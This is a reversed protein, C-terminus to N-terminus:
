FLFNKQHTNFFNLLLNQIILQDINFNVMMLNIVVKGIFKGVKV